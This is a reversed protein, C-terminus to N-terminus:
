NAPDRPRLTWATGAGGGAAVAIFWAAVEARGLVTSVDLVWGRALLWTAAAVALALPVAALRLRPSRLSRGAALGWGAIFLAGYGLVLLVPLARAVPGGTLGPLRRLGLFLVAGAILALLSGAVSGVIGRGAPIPRSSSALAVGVGQAILPLMLLVPILVWTVREWSSRPYLDLLARLWGERAAAALGWVAAGGVTAGRVAREWFEARRTM